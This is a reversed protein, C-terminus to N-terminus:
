LLEVVAAELEEGHLKKARIIGERDVLVTHPIAPVGYLKSGECDWGKIDSIHHWELNDDEIARIWSAKDSDLSVGIIELGQENYKEYLAVVEPNARRCPGCWSAWFDILLVNGQHVDSLSLHTGDPTPLGFDRYPKGVTVEKQKEYIGYMYKYEDMGHLSGDLASLVQGLEDTDYNYFSNRLLLVSVASGPHAEIYDADMAEKEEALETYAAEIAGLAEQNGEESAAYYQQYLDSMKKELDATKGHYADLDQQAKGTGTIVPEELTGTVTYAANELLMRSRSDTGKAGLYVTRVGDIRGKMEAPVGPEVLVSDIVQYERGSRAVLTIWQDEVGDMDLTVTYGEEPQSCAGTMLLAALLIIPNRM